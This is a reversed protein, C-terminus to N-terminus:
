RRTIFLVEFELYGLPYDRILAKTRAVDLVRRGGSVGSRKIYRLMDRVTEFELAYHVVEFHADFHRDAIAMVEDASKLIPELGATAYLHGFTGSTFIALSLPIHLAALAALVHELDHAWQLASASYIRDFPENRLTEFLAPDNFDGCVLEVGPPAPHHSLMSPSFDIGVFREIPWTLQAFLTGSGCGLDLITKPFDPTDAILKQAVKAQIVNHTGYEAAFRSFEERVRM